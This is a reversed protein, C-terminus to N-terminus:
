NKNRLKELATGIKAGGARKNSSKRPSPIYEKKYKSKEVGEESRM